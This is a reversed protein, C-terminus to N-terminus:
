VMLLEANTALGGNSISAIAFALSGCFASHNSAGREKAIRWVLVAATAAALIGLTRIAIIPDPVIMEFIAFLAYLFPPKNDWVTTYPPHGHVWANSVLAYITEDWNIVPSYFAVFRLSFTIFFIVIGIKITQKRSFEAM